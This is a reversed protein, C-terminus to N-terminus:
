SRLFELREPSSSAIWMEFCNRNDNGFETTLEHMMITYEDEHERFKELFKVLHDYKEKRSKTYLMEDESIFFLISTMIHYKLKLRDPNLFAEHETITPEILYGDRYIRNLVDGVPICKLNFTRKLIKTEHDYSQISPEPLYSSFTVSRDFTEWMVNM